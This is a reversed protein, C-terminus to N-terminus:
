ANSNSIDVFLMHIDVGVKDRDEDDEDGCDPRLCM